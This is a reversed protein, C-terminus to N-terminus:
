YVISDVHDALAATVIKSSFNMKIIRDNVSFRLRPMVSEPVFTSLPFRKSMVERAVESFEAGAKVEFTFLDWYTHIRNPLNDPFVIYYNTELDINKRIKSSDIANFHCATAAFVFIILCKRSKNSCPKM